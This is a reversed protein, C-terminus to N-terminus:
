GTEKKVSYFMALQLQNHKPDSFKGFIIFCNGKEEIEKERMEKDEDSNREWNGTNM